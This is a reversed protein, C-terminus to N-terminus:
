GRSVYSKSETDIILKDGKKVFIPANIKLGTEMTVEKRAQGQTNGATAPYAETVELVVKPPLSVGIANDEYFMIYAKMEPTLLDLKDEILKRPIEVQEYSRQNMFVVSAADQYLYQMEQSNIDLEEVSETSKYTFEQTNENKVGRLKVRMFASGKGPSMFDARTVQYPEGKFKLYMGKRISGAKIEPM